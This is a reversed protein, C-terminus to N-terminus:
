GVSAEVEDDNADFVEGNEVVFVGAGAPTKAPREGVVAALITKEEAKARDILDFISKGLSEGRDLLEIGLGEPYLASLASSLHMVQSTSLMGAATGQYVFNGSEDFSLDPIGCTEGVSSLKALKEAKIERERAEIAKLQEEDAKRAKARALNRTYQEFRVNDASAASIKAELESTDPAGPMAPIEPYAPRASEFKSPNCSLWTDDDTVNLRLTAIKKELEVIEDARRKRRDIVIQVNASYKRVQDNAKDIADVADEHEGKVKSAHAQAKAVAQNYKARIEGLEAKLATADVQKVPTLDIDGYGKVKARLERATSECRMAESDLANTDVAFQEAFYKKRDTEGMNALYNQDKQFPNMLRKLESAANDVPKGNKFFEVDRATVKGGKGRYWSRSAVGIDFKIQILAEKEGHRIIDNPWGGALLWRVANLITSKGQKIEGYFVLLPKDLPIVEDKMIGVNKITLEKARM